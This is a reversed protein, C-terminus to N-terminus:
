FCFLSCLLYCQPFPLLLQPLLRRPDPFSQPFLLLCCTVRLCVIKTRHSQRQIIFTQHHTCPWLCSNMNAYLLKTKNPFFPVIFSVLRVHKLIYGNWLLEMIIISGGGLLQSVPRVSNGKIVVAYLSHDGFERNGQEQSCRPVAEAQILSVSFCHCRLM